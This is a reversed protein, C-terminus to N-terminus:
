HSRRPRSKYFACGSYKRIRKPATPAFCTPVRPQPPGTSNARIRRSRLASPVDAMWFSRSVSSKRRRLTEGWGSASKGRSQMLSKQPSRECPPISRCSSPTSASSSLRCCPRRRKTVRVAAVCCTYRESGKADPHELLKVEVGPEVQEWGGSDLLQKEVRRLQSKPTGVIYLAHKGRLYDLNDESVMGRDMAWIREAVGYKSEMLEVIEEVTTVDCRNGAFVEYALPLGEPTVVLGICVQKCDPRSDRSYGRRAQPNGECQGEFYTSTIDYLLFEFRSGFWSTVSRSIASFRRACHCCKTWAVTSATTMSPRPVSVWFTM